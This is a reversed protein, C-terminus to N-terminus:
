AWLVVTCLGTEPSTGVRPLDDDDEEEEEEEEEEELLAKLKPDVSQAPSGYTSVRCGTYTLTALHKTHVSYVWVWIFLFPLRM